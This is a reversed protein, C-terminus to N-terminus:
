ENIHHFFDRWTRSVQKCQFASEVPVRSLIEYTVEPPYNDLNMPNIRMSAQM